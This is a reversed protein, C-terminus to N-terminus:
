TMRYIYADEIMTGNVVNGTFRIGSIGPGTQVALRLLKILPHSPGVVSINKLSIKPAPSLRVLVSQVFTYAEKPGKKEFLPSAILLRWEDAESTYLWMAADIGLGQKDLALILKKGERIDKEVLAEKAM